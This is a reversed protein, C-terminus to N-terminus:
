WFYPVEQIQTLDFVNNQEEHENARKISVLNEKYISIMPFGYCYGRLQFVKIEQTNCNYLVLDSTKTRLFIEGNKWFGLARDFDLFPGITLEKTWFGEDKMVWIDFFTEDGFDSHILTLSNNHLFIDGCYYIPVPPGPIDGFIEKDMDFTFITIVDNYYTMWYYFGNMCTNTLSYREESTIPLDVEFFRWSDARLNYVAALWDIQLEDMHEGYAWIRVVKYNNTIPDFGFGSFNRQHYTFIPLDPEPIPVFRFERIAPNWLIIHNWVCLGIIGNLIGLFGPNTPMQLDGLNYYENWSNALTKDTFLAFAHKETSHDYHEVFLQGINSHHHFHWSVFSSSKILTSWYKCVCKLRMLSKGPLRLLIEIILDEKMYDNSNKSAM